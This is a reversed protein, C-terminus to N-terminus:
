SSKLLATDNITSNKTLANLKGIEDMSGFLIEMRIIRRSYDTSIPMTRIASTPEILKLISNITFKLSPKQFPSHEKIMPIM